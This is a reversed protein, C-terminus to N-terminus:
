HWATLKAGREQKGRKKSNSIKFTMVIQNEIVLNEFNPTGPHGLM